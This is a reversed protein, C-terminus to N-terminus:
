RVRENPSAARARLHSLSVDAGDAEILQPASAAEEQGVQTATVRQVRRSRGILAGAALLTGGSVTILSLVLIRVTDPPLTVWVGSTWSAVGVIWVAAGGAM